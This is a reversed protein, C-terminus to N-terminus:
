RNCKIGAYRVTLQINENNQAKLYALFDKYEQIETDRSANDIQQDIKKLTQVITDLHARMKNKQPRDIRIAM